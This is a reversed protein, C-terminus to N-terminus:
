SNKKEEQFSNSLMSSSSSLRKLRTWSQAVGFVAAWWARGPNELCSCQLPSGDGEGYSNRFKTIALKMRRSLVLFYTSLYFYKQPPTFIASSCSPSIVKEEVFEDFSCFPSCLECFLKQDSAVSMLRGSFCGM